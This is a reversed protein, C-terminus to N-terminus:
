QVSYSHRTPSCVTFSFTTVKSVHHVHTLESFLDGSGPFQNVMLEVVHLLLPARHVTDKVDPVRSLYELNFAELQLPPSPPILTILYSLPPHESVETGNLFNGISLLTSLVQRLTKSKQVDDIARKVEMLADGLEQFPSFAHGM